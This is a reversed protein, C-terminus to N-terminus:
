AINAGIQEKLAEAIGGWAGELRYLGAAHDFVIPAGLEERMKKLDRKFTAYSVPALGRLDSLAAAGSRLRREILVYRLADSTLLSTGKRQGQTM